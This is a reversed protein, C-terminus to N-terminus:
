SWPVFRQGPLQKVLHRLELGLLTSTCASATLGTKATLTEVDCPEDRRLQHMLRREEDTVGELTTAPSGSQRQAVEGGAGHAAPRAPAVLGLEELIDDVSTVLRAGQKLLHHTGQSTLSDVKGPVAFVERGQELACDATILAGSRHAAEVIVVGVSLGSILRNRRPFHYSLPPSGMPYESLLAGRQAVIQEALARHEPPYLRDLGSGWVALTRGAAQLAGRHAAADIGRALGSVIMVGRLALEYALRQATQQGYLSARRSGVIAVAVQEEAKGAGKMYLVPPPDHITRLVDPYTAELRTVIACGAAHARAVEEAALGPRRGQAILCAALKPTIREVGRLQAESAQFVAGASGFAELLRTAALPTLEPILNLLILWERETM